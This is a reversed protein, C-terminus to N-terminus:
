GLDEVDVGLDLGLDDGELGFSSKLEDIRRGLSVFTEGLREVEVDTLTGAEYRRLAQREMLQRLLDVISLVLRAL